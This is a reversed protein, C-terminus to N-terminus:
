LMWHVSKKEPKKVVQMVEVKTNTSIVYVIGKDTIYLQCCKIGRLFMGAKKKAFLNEMLSMEKIRKYRM